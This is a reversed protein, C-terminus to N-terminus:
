MNLIKTLDNEDKQKERAKIQERSVPNLGFKNAIEMAMKFSNRMISVEPRTVPYGSQAYFIEGNKEIDDHLRFYRALEICFVSFIILDQQAVIGNRCLEVMHYKWIQLAMGKLKMEKPPSIYNNITEIEIGNSARDKRFTGEIQKLKDPKKVSM